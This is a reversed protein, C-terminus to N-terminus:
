FYMFCHFRHLFFVHRDAKLVLHGAGPCTKCLCAARIFLLKGCPLGIRLFLFGAHDVSVFGNQFFVLPPSYFLSSSSKMFFSPNKKKHFFWKCFLVICTLIFTDKSFCNQIM